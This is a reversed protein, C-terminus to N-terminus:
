SPMVKIADGEFHLHHVVNHQLDVGGADDVVFAMKVATCLRGNKELRWAWAFATAQPYHMDTLESQVEYGTTLIPVGLFAIGFELWDNVKIEGSGVTKHLVTYRALRASNEQTAALDARRRESASYDASRM